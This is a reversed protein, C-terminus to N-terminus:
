TRKPARCTHNGALVAQPSLGFSKKFSRSFHSLDSFGFAFAADTVYAFDGQRLGKYSAALRQQWLWRMPTVGDNAFLRNLTRRGIHHAKAISETDLGPDSLNRVMYAKIDALMTNSAYDAHECTGFEIAAAVVDIVSLCLRETTTHGEAAWEIQCAESLVKRAFTGLRSTGRVPSAIALDPRPLRAAHQPRPVKLLIAEYKGTYKLSFPQAQDHIVMDGTSIAAERDHQRLQMQGDLLLTVLYDDCYDRKIESPGRTFQLDHSAIECLEARAFIHNALRGHFDGTSIRSCETLSLHRCTLDHWAEFQQIEVTPM